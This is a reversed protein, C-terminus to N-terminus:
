QRRALFNGTYSASDTIPQAFRGGISDGLLMGTHTRIRNGFYATITIERSNRVRGTFMHLRNRSHGFADVEVYEISGSISDGIQQSIALTGSMRLQPTDQAAVYEWSGQLWPVVEAGRETPSDCAAFVIVSCVALFRSM